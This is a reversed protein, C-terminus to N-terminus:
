PRRCVDEVATSDGQVRVNLGCYLIGKGARSIGVMRPYFTM